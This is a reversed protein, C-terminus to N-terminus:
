STKNFNIKKNPAKPCAQRPRCFDPETAEFKALNKKLYFYHMTCIPYAGGLGIGAQTVHASCGATGSGYYM